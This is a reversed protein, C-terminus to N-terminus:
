RHQLALLGLCIVQAVDVDTPWPDSAICGFVGCEHRLQRDDEEVSMKIGLIFIARKCNIIIKIKLVIISIHVIDVFIHM